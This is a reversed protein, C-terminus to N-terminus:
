QREFVLTGVARGALPAYVAPGIPARAERPADAATYSAGDDTGADYVVAEVELRDAWGDRVRLDLGDVGVFWDPSPAIMTVVSVLPRGETVTFTAGGSGPSTRIPDGELYRAPGGLADVEAQLRVTSGTEAMSRIGDTATVGVRWLTVGEAHTAGTLRSFHPNPPFADPHTTASWTAEFTVVYQADPREFPEQEIPDASDCAVVTFSLLLLLLSRVPRFPSLKLSM